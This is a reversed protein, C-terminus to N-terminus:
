QLINSLYDELDEIESEIGGSERDLWETANEAGEGGLADKRIRTDLTVISSDNLFESMALIKSDLASTVKQDISDKTELIEIKTEVSPDLGLRHIRDKSQLYYTANYSRDLYLAHHCVKHLSIGESCAAPNAVLVFCDDDKKFREIRFERGEPDTIESGAPVGGHIFTAACGRNNLQASVEEVTRVFTSWILTKKGQEKNKLAEKIAYEIKPPQESYAQKYVDRLAESESGEIAKSFVMKPDLAVQLMWMVAQKIRAIRSSDSYTLGLSSRYKPSAIMELLTKQSVSPELATIIEKAEPIDLEDKTTRVFVSGLKERAGEEELKLGPQLFLCQSVLDRYSQPCPTGTMILKQAKIRAALEIIHTTRVGIDNKIRHSEDLFFFIGEPTGSSFHVLADVLDESAGFKEYNVLIVQSGSTLAPYTDGVRELIEVKPAADSSFCAAVEDKWAQFVNRPCVVLLPESGSRRLCYYALAETTKGAGPVSFTAGYSRRILKKINELQYPKKPERVFGENKLKENIEEDSKEPCEEESYASSEFNELFAKGSDTCEFGAQKAVFHSLSSRHSVFDRAKVHISDKGSSVSLGMNNAFTLFDDWERNPCEITFTVVGDREDIVLNTM